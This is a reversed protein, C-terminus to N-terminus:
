FDVGVRLGITRPTNTVVYPRQYCQGCQVFRSLEAREDFANEVYLETTFKGWDFGLAFDATTWSNLRGQLLAPNKQNGLSDVILTRLDSAASGSHTVVGQVHAKGSGMDWEYRAQVTGKFKPTVPLRTGKPASIYNAKGDPGLGTCAFSPQDYGCLNNRTKADTYALTGSLTLGNRANYSMDLELGRIRADPGNHIETFSNLGLFAYQFAKWNQQYLAGNLRLKGDAWTTKFGLEYNTLYDPAYPAITARRNIGGPRFGRSWTAYILQDDSPKWNISLRHSFGDGKTAKPIVKGNSFVGLNNCPSGPVVPPVLTKTASTNAPNDRDFIVKGDTTFCKTVGTRSSGAGNFPTDTFNGGPNRGFGFFGILSNDYKFGRLGGTLTLKDSIDFSAEGFAAYDKDVRDQQTLWLTGPRGNVSVQPGLGTVQYDQHIRNFQRQYFLGASVRFRNDSPSSIRLEQSLKKFHDGGDIRQVPLVNNGAADQFYFYGALGGYSAYLADYAEAYDTYDSHTSRKRDMYAGAYTLDWNGLKGEITLAGQIFRDSNDERGFHQVKLDGVRPDFGFSGHNTQKQGFVSATATWNDDLDIKLAARGGVIDSDNYNKAVFGTNTISFGGPQPLFRRTGLVNDIYGANHQYWGVIRIAASDSIPANIFGEVKGGIGGKAVTNVEGDVGGAFGSADPKNSIIRITGAESSAGYLTGQPGALAEIRAIDYIHVDLTGGITTVPQEDLYVGVSPLSGSHNGDGGSAVGRIYVTTQGPQTTQFSVSPLLKTYDNFDTINLQDLKKAGLAQISIPVDQLNEERKQATVIIEDNAAADEAPASQALAPVSVLMSTAFLALRLSHRSLMPTELMKIQPVKFRIASLTL